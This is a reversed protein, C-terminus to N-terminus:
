QAAEVPVLRVAQGGNAACDAEIRDGAGVVRTACAVAAPTAGTPDADGYLFAEYSTGKDLFDLPVVITSVRDDEM